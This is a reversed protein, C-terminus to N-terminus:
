RILLRCIAIEFPVLVFTGMLDFVEALMRNESIAPIAGILAFFVASACAIISQSRLRVSLEGLDDWVTRLITGVPLSSTTAV